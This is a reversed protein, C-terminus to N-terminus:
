SNTTVSKFRSTWSPWYNLNKKESTFKLTPNLSNLINFFENCEAENEFIAFTDDVYQKYFQPKVTFDFLKNEHYGVFINALVSGPMSGMAIGNNQRNMTNNFSFETGSTAM